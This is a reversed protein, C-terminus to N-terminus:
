SLQYLLQSNILPDSTRAWCASGYRELDTGSVNTEEDVKRLGLRFPAQVYEGSFFLIPRLLTGGFGVDALYWLDGKPHSVLLSPHSNSTSPGREARMVHAPIRVVRFGPNELM